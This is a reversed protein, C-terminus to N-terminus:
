EHRKFFRTLRSIVASDTTGHEQLQELAQMCDQRRTELEERASAVNAMEQQLQSQERFLRGREVSLKVQHTRHEALLLQRVQKLKDAEDGSIQREAFQEMWDNIKGAISAVQGSLWDIYQDRQNVMSRLAATSDNPEPCHWDRLLELPEDDDRAVPPTLLVIRLSEIGVDSDDASPGPVEDSEAAASDDGATSELQAGHLLAETALGTSNTLLADAGPEVVPRAEILAKLEDVRDSLERFARLEPRNEWRQHFEQVEDVLQQQGQQLEQVDQRSVESAVSAHPQGVAGHVPAAAAPSVPANGPVGVPSLGANIAQLLTSFRDAVASEVANQFQSPEQSPAAAQLQQAVHAPPVAHGAPAGGGSFM